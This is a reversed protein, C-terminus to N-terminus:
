VGHDDVRRHRARGASCRATGAIGEAQLVEKSNWWEARLAEAQSFRHQLFVSRRDARVCLQAFRAIDAALAEAAARARGDPVARDCAGIRLAEEATLKRGTLIIDLARGCTSYADQRMVVDHWRREAFDFCPRGFPPVEIYGLVARRDFQQYVFRNFAFTYKARPIATIYRPVLAELALPYRGNSARYIDIAKILHTARQRALHNNINIAAMIAVATLSFLLALRVTPWANRRVKSLLLAKPLLWGCVTVFLLAALLGQGLWLADAAFLLLALYPPRRWWPRM